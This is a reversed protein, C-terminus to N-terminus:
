SQSFTCHVWFVTLSYELNHKQHSYFHEGKKHPFFHKPALPLGIDMWLSDFQSMELILKSYKTVSTTRTKNWEVFSLFLTDTRTWATWILQCKTLNAVQQMTYNYLAIVVQLLGARQSHQLHPSKSIIFLVKQWPLTTWLQKDAKTHFISSNCSERSSMM